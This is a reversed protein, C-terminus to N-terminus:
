GQLVEAGRPTRVEFGEVYGRVDAPDFVRGDLFADPGMPIPESADELVWAQRHAGEPKRDTAPLAVGLGRVAERYVDPRYVANVLEDVSFTEAIQGWRLMQSVFWAAHSRWPFTAAFRFFVAGGPRFRLPEVPEPLMTRGVVDVPADVYSEGAIVHVAELRNEPRDIWAAAEVLARVLARHTAPHREAWDRTVGLVKEPSNNWLDYKSVVTHGLGLAVAHENWPEGVCYGDLRGEALMRVMACPPAVIIRLDRDPDIGASAVWYRLEYNHSSFPFVVGFTLPGDGRERGLDVVRRLVRASVPRREVGAPDLARMRDYLANSVTIANGNLDLCLAAVMPVALAGMGLTAALPMPALMQAGDLVGAAVHDRVNSWSPERVLTVDLGYRRFFGREKAIALPACDTLPVFGLRLERKEVGNSRAHRSGDLGLTPQGM